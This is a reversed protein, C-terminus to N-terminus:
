TEKCKSVIMKLISIENSFAPEIEEIIEIHLCQKLQLVDRVGEPADEFCGPNFSSKM